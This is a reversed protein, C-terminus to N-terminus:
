LVQGGISNAASVSGGSSQMNNNVLYVNQTNFHEAAEYSAASDHLHKAATNQADGTQTGAQAIANTADTANTGFSAGTAWGQLSGFSNSAAQVQKVLSDLEAIDSQIRKAVSTLTDRHVSFQGNGSADPANWAPAAAPKAPGNAVTPVASSHQPSSGTIANGTASVIDKGTNIIDDLIGM